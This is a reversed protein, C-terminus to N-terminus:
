FNFNYLKMPTLFTIGVQVTDKITQLQLKTVLIFLNKAIVMKFQIPLESPKTLHDILLNAFFLYNADAHRASLQEGLKEAFAQFDVKSQLDEYVPEKREVSLGTFYGSRIM